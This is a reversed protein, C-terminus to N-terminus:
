SRTEISFTNDRLEHSLERVMCVLFRVLTVTRRALNDKRETGAEAHGAEAAPVSKLQEYVQIWCGVCSSTDGCPVDSESPRQMMCPPTAGALLVTTAAMALIAFHILKMICGHVIYPSFTYLDLLVTSFLSFFNYFASFFHSLLFSFTPLVANYALSQRALVVNYALSQRALVVNLLPIMNFSFATATRSPIATHDQWGAASFVWGSSAGLGTLSFAGGLSDGARTSSFAAGM